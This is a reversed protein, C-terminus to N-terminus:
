DRAGDLARQLLTADVVIATPAYEDADDPDYALARVREVTAQAEQLERESRASDLSHKEALTQLWEISRQSKRLEALMTHATGHYNALEELDSCGYQDLLERELKDLEITM